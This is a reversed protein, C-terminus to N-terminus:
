KHRRPSADQQPLATGGNVLETYLDPRRQQFNRSIKRAKRVQGLNISGTIYAEKRDPCRAVLRIPWDAIMTGGGYAQNTCIMAVHSQFTVSKVIFDEVTGGRGNIWM